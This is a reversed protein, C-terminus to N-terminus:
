LVVGARSHVQSNRDGASRAVVAAETRTSAGLKRLVASVHVSVTKVSIFLREGIQRNSLGEAILDLVQRERATLGDTVSASAPAGVSAALGAASAFAAVATQLQVHGLADAISAADALLPAAAARDGNHVLLRACELRTFVRFTVPVDEGDALATASHLAEATPMLLADIIASWTDGRLQEPQANWAASV